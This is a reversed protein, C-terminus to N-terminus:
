IPEDCRILITMNSSDPSVQINIRKDRYGNRVGVVTYPGPRLQLQHRKFTGLRAVRYVTVETNGDSELSITVPTVAVHVLQSLQAYQNEIISGPSELQEIVRLLAEARALVEDKYLEDASNLAKKLEIVIEAKAISDKLGQQAQQHQSDLQLVQEFSNAANNWEQLEIYHNAEYLLNTIKEQRIADAVKKMGLEPENSDPKITNALEFTSQADSYQSNQLAKYAAAILQDFERDNLKATVRALSSEAEESLPDLAVAEQYGSLAQQLQGHSEFRSARQMIAFLEKITSARQLGHKAQINERDIAQALEFQQM